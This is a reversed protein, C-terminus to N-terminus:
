VDIGRFANGTEALPLFNYDNIKKNDITKLVSLPNLLSLNKLNLKHIKKLENINGDSTYLYVHEVIKFSLSEEKKIKNIEIIVKNAIDVDGYYWLLKLDKVKNYMGFYVILEDNCIYLLEDHRKKGIKWILYSNKKDARMWKRAGIEASFIGVSLGNLSSKLLRMNAQFLQRISKSIGINFLYKSDSGMPYHYFDMVRKIDKDLSQSLHWDVIEQNLNDSFCTSFLINKKDLSFTCIHESSDILSFIHEIVDFYHKDKEESNILEKVISGYKNILPGNETPIWNLYHYTSGSEAIGLVKNQGVKKIVRLLVM